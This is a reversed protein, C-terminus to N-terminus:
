QLYLVCQVYSLSVETGKLTPVKPDWVTRAIAMLQGTTNEQIEDVTQFRKGKWPSKLKLFLWLGCLVLDPRDPPQTIQTIQHKALLEACVTICSCTYQQSSAALWLNGIAMARHIMQITEVSSHELKIFFKICIQQEVWETMKFAIDCYVHESLLM